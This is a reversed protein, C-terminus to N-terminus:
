INTMKLMVRDYRVRDFHTLIVCWFQHDALRTRPIVLVVLSRGQWSVLLVLLLTAVAAGLAFAAAGLRHFGPTAASLLQHLKSFVPQLHGWLAVHFKYGTPEIARAREREIELWHSYPGCCCLLSLFSGPTRNRITSM